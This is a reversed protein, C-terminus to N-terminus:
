ILYYSFRSSISIYSVLCAGCMEDCENKLFMQIMKDFVVRLSSTGFIKMHANNSFLHLTKSEESTNM